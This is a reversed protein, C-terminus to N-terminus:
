YPGPIDGGSPTLLPWWVGTPSISQDLPRVSGDAFLANMADHSTSALNVDSATQWPSPKVQFMAPPPAYMAYTGRFDYTVAFAPTFIDGPFDNNAWLPGTPKYSTHLAGVGYAYKEVFAITNSTGDAFDSALSPYTQWGYGNAYSPNLANGFVQWNAAYCCAGWGPYGIGVGDRNDKFTPDSPCVYVKPPPLVGPYNGLGNRYDNCDFIGTATSQSGKYINNQEIFPLLFFTIPGYGNGSMRLKGPFYGTAPPMKKYTDQCHHLAIGIQKLNNQCESRNAAERVKQVAPVLLGILVAIIAIVVL